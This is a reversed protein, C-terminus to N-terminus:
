LLVAWLRRERPLDAPLSVGRGSLSYFLASSIGWSCCAGFGSLISLMLLLGILGYLGEMCCQVSHGCAAHPLFELHPAPPM